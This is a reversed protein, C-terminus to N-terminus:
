VKREWKEVMQKHGAVADAVTAYRVCDQELWDTVTGNADCEFVMSELTGWAEVTSVIYKSGVVTRGINKRM